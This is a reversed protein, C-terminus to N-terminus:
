MNQPFPFGAQSLSELTGLQVDVAVQTGDPVPSKCNQCKLSEKELRQKLKEPDNAPSDAAAKEVSLKKCTPCAFSFTIGFFFLPTM